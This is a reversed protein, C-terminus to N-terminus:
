PRKLKTGGRKKGKLNGQEKTWTYDGKPVNDVSGGYWLKTEPSSPLSAANLRVYSVFSHFFLQDNSFKM